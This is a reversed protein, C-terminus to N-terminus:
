MCLEKTKINLGYDILIKSVETVDFYDGSYIDCKGKHHAILACQEAQEHIHNCVKVLCAMIFNFNHKDDNELILQYKKDNDM